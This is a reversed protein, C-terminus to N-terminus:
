KFKRSFHTFMAAQAVQWEWVMSEDPSYSGILPGAKRIWLPSDGPCIGAVAHPTRPPPAVVPGDPQRTWSPLSQAQRLAVLTTPLVVEWPDGQAVETGAARTAERVEEVINLYLPSTATASRDWAAGATEDVSRLRNGVQVMRTTTGAQLQETTVIQLRESLATVASTLVIRTTDYGVSGLTDRTQASWSGNTSWTERARGRVEARSLAATGLGAALRSSPSVVMAGSDVGTQEAPRLMLFRFVTEM